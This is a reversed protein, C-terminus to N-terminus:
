RIRQYRERHPIGRAHYNVFDGKLDSEPAFGISHVLGHLV